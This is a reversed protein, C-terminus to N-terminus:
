SVRSIKWYYNGKSSTNDEQARYWGLLQINNSADSPLINILIGYAVVEVEARLIM